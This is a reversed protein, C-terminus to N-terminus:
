KINLIKSVSLNVGDCTLHLFLLSAPLNRVDIITTSTSFFAQQLLTGSADYLRYAWIRDPTFNKLHVVFYGSAPNPFVSVDSDVKLQQVSTVSAFNVFSLFGLEGLPFNLTGAGTKDIRLVRDKFTMKRIDSLSHSLWVANKKKIYLSQAQLSASQLLAGLLLLSLGVYHKGKM